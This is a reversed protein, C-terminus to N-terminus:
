RTPCWMQYCGCKLTGNIDTYQQRNNLYSKFWLLPSGRVGYYDLKNLLINHNVTDFAKSFDLFICFASIKNEFSNNINNCIENIALETSKQAQFGYQNPTIINYKNIFSILRNYMLREFIKSFIPLLSIPRYNSVTLPSDNKYLPIVKAVKFLEPYIDGNISQNFLITLNKTISSSGLKVFKSTVDYIDAANSDRLDDIILSIEHPNTENVYFSHENPNKLYDQFVNNSKPINKNLEFAVNTFYSNFKNAISLQSIQQNKNNKNLINNLQKWTKRINNANETFFAKYYTKKSKRILKKLLDRYQRYKTLFCNDNSQDYRKLLSRKLNISKLIGKTLWPKLKTKSAKKSLIKIPAHLNYSKMFHKHFLSALENTDLHPYDLLEIAQLDQLFKANDFKSMDRIKFRTHTPKPNKAKFSIFNPLHDFSIKELINGSIPNSINHVFINDVLSPVNSDLVRSHGTICPHFQQELMFILFKTSNTDDGYKLLNLNLDGTIAILKMKEKKLKNLTQKM